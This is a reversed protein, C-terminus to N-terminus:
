LLSNKLEKEKSKAPIRLAQEVAEPITIVMKEEM